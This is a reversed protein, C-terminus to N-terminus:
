VLDEADILEAPLLTRRATRRGGLRDVYFQVASRVMPSGLKHGVRELASNLEQAEISVWGGSPLGFSACAILAEEVEPLAAFRSAQAVHAEFAVGGPLFPAGLRRGLTEVARAEAVQDTVGPAREARTAVAMTDKVWATAEGLLARALPSNPAILDTVVEDQPVTMEYVMYRRIGDDPPLFRAANTTGATVFGVRQHTPLVQYKGVASWSTRSIFSKLAASAEESGLASMEDTVAVSGGSLRTYVGHVIGENGLLSRPDFENFLGEGPLLTDGSLARLTSTKGRAQAGQLIMMHDWRVGPHLARAAIARVFSSFYLRNLYTDEAGPHLGGDEETLRTVPNARWDAEADELYEVLPDIVRAGATTLNLIMRRRNKNIAGIPGCEALVESFLLDTSDDDLYERSGDPLERMYGGTRRNRVIEKLILSHRAILGAERDNAEARKSKGVSDVLLSALYGPSGPGSEAGQVQATAERLAEQAMGVAAEKLLTIRNDEVRKRVRPDEAVPALTGQTARRFAADDSPMAETLPVGAHLRSQAMLIDFPYVVRGVLPSSGYFDVYAGAVATSPVVGGPTAETGDAGVWTYAGSAERRYTCGMAAGYARSLDELDEYLENFARMAEPQRDRSTRPRELAGQEQSARLRGQLAAALWDAALDLPAGDSRDVLAPERGDKTLTPLIAKQSARACAPDISMTREWSPDLVDALAKYAHPYLSPAMPAALPLIVRWRPSEPTSSATEWAVHSVGLRELHSLIEDTVSSHDLDLAIIEARSVSPTGRSGQDRPALPGVLICPTKDKPRSYVKDILSHLLVTVQRGGGRSGLSSTLRPVKFLTLRASM